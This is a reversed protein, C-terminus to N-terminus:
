NGSMMVGTRTNITMAAPATAPARPASSPMPPPTKRTGKRFMPSPSGYSIEIAVLRMVTMAVDLATEAPVVPFFRM